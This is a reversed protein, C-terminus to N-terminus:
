WINSIGTMYLKRLIALALLKIQVIWSLSVANSSLHVDIDNAIFDKDTVSTGHFSIYTCHFHFTFNGIQVKTECLYSGSIVGKLYLSWSHENLSNTSKKRLGYQKWISYESLVWKYLKISM